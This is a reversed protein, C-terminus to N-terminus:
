VSGKEGEWVTQERKNRVQGGATDRCVDEHGSERPWPGWCKPWVQLISLIISTNISIFDILQGTTLDATWAWIFDDPHDSSKITVLKYATMFNELYHTSKKESKVLKYYM